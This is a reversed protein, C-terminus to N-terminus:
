FTIFVLQTLIYYNNVKTSASILDWNINIITLISDHLEKTDNSTEDLNYKEWLKITSSEGDKNNILDIIKTFTMICVALNKSGVDFATITLPKYTNM